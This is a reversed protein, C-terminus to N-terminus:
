DDAPSSVSGEVTGGIEAMSPAAAMGRQYRAM